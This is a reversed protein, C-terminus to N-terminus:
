AHSLVACLLCLLLCPPLPLHLRVTAVAACLPSPPPLPPSTPPPSRCMVTGHPKQKWTYESALRIAAIQKAAEKQATDGAGSQARIAKVLVKGIQRMTNYM